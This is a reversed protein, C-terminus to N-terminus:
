QVAAAGVAGAAMARVARFYVSALATVLLQVAPDLEPQGHPPLLLLVGPREPMQGLRSAAEEGLMPGLVSVSLAELMRTDSEPDAGALLVAMALARGQHFFSAFASGGAAAAWQLEIEHKNLFPLVERFEAPREALFEAFLNCVSRGQELTPELDFEAAEVRVGDPSASDGARLTRVIFM